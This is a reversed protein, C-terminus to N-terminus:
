GGVSFTLTWPKVPAGDFAKLGDLTEVKVRRFPTLPQALRLEIARTGADYTSKFMLDPDADATGVYSVRLHGAISDELLGRSFQIRIPASPSVDSEDLTPSSFVV